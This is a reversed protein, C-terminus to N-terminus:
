DERMSPRRPWLSPSMLSRANAATNGSMAAISSMRGFRRSLGRSEFLASM